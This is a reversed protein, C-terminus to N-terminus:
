PAIVGVQRWTKIWSAAVRTWDWAAVRAVAAQGMRTRLSRDRALAIAATTLEEPRDLRTTWGDIGSRILRQAGAHDRAVVALGSAMAEAVVLGWTEFLSPFVLLDASALVEALAPGHMAGLFHAGPLQQELDSRLPGDGIVVVHAAPVARRIAQAITGFLAPEKEPALRGCWAVVPDSDAAGWTRRREQSRLRPHFAETDVGHPLEIANTIGAAQLLALDGAHLAIVQTAHQLWEMELRLIEGSPPDLYRHPGHFTVSCPVQALHCARWVARAGLGNCDLHIGHPKRHRGWGTLLRQTLGDADAGTTPPPITRPEWPVGLRDCHALM